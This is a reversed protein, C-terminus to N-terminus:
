CRHPQLECLRRNRPDRDLAVPGLLVRRGAGPHRRAQRRYGLRLLRPRSPRPRARRHGGMAVALEALGNTRDRSPRHRRPRGYRPLLRHHRREPRPRLPALAGLLEVVGARCLPGCRIRPPLGSRLRLRAGPYRRPNRRDTGPRLGRHTAMQAKRGPLFASFVVILLPWLYNLLGAEVVPANRLAIFYAAHYGFLGGVGLLWVPWPQRLAKAACASVGVTRRRCPWWHWLHDGDVPLAAHRREGRHLRRPPEVPPCRCIRHRNRDPPDPADAAGLRNTAGISIAPAARRYWMEVGIIVVIEGVADSRKAESRTREIQLLGFQGAFAGRREAIVSPWASISFARRLTRHLHLAVAPPRVSRSLFAALATQFYKTWRSIHPMRAVAPHDLVVTDGILHHEAEARHIALFLVQLRRPEEPLRPTRLLPARRRAETRPLQVMGCGRERCRELAWRM